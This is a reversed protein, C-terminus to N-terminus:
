RDAEWRAALEPLGPFVADPYIEKQPITERRDIGSELLITKLGARQGGLIDTELRDGLMATQAPQSEMKALAIDFMHRNPKGIITPEVGTAAQIAALLSGAGPINGEETPYSRDPNAGFFAAGRNIHLTAYKLREFTLEFDLGVAVLAVAQDMGDVIRFGAESMARHLGEGGVLYVPVGPEFQERLYAATALSSTLICAEDIEVGMRALKQQYQAPTNASNNTVLMFPLARSEIFAFFRVLGPLPEQGRWLVGDMDIALARIESLDFSPPM